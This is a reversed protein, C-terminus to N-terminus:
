SQRRTFHAELLPALLEPSEAAVFHGVNPLESVFAGPFIQQWRKLNRESVLKDAMGWVIQVPILVSKLDESRQWASNEFDFLARLFGVAGSREDPSPFQAMFHKHLKKTLPRHSGWAMKILVRPSFNLYRYLAPLIGSTVLPKQQKMQPETEILPWYWSNLITLSLIEFEKDKLLPLAIVGGFDHVVLHFSTIKSEVLSHRFRMQHNQLSYDGNKPKPSQGFGLHDILVCRFNNALISAVEAFEGSYTPTGHAFVVNPGNGEFSIALKQDNNM